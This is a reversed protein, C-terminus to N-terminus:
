FYFLINWLIFNNELRYIIIFTTHQTPLTSICISIYFPRANTRNRESSPGISSVNSWVIRIPLVGVKKYKSRYIIVKNWSPLLYCNECVSFSSARSLKWSTVPFTKTQVLFSKLWQAVFRHWLQWLLQM